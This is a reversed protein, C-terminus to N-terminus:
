KEAARAFRLTEGTEASRLTVTGPEIHISWTGPAPVQFATMCQDRLTQGDFADGVRKMPFDCSRQRGPSDANAWSLRASRSERSVQLVGHISITRAEYKGQITVDFVYLNNAGASRPQIVLFLQNGPGAVGNYRGQLMNALDVSPEDAAVAPVVLLTAIDVSPEDPDAASAPGPSVAALVAITVLVSLIRVYRSERM